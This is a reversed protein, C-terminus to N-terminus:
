SAHVDPVDELIQDLTTKGENLLSAGDRVSVSAAIRQVDSERREATVTIKELAGGGSSVGTPASQALVGSAFGIGSILGLLVLRKNM